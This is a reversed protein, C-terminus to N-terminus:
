TINRKIKLQYYQANGNAGGLGTKDWSMSSETISTMTQIIATVGSVTEGSMTDSNSSWYGDTEGMSM